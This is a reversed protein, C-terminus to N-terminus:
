LTTPTALQITTMTTQSSTSSTPVKAIMVTTWQQESPDMTQQTQTMQILTQTAHHVLLPTVTRTTLTTHEMMLTPTTASLERM